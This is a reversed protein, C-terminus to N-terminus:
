RYLKSIKENKRGLNKSGKIYKFYIEKLKESSEYFSHLFNISELCDKYNIPFKKKHILSNHLDKYFEYHGFGYADPIKESYIKCKKTDPTFIQLENAAIGGIQAYGKSGLISISAEIDEPRTSTTVEINALIKKKFKVLGLATDEVEVNVGLTDMKCFTSIPKGGLFKVLDIYHIGQNTLAGGDHSFTGRWTSMNYYRQTRCWRLRLSIINIKGLLKKKLSKKIFQVAKNYRNQFIPFIKVKNKKSNEFLKKVHEIKLSIPKEIVVNKKYKNIIESAHEFHMGSPTIIVVVDCAIERLMQHLNSFTPIKYKKGYFDAKSINLDCIGTILYKGSKKIARIHHNAVRGCGIISLNIKKTNKKM